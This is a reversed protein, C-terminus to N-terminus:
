LMSGQTSEVPSKLTVSYCKANYLSNIERFYFEQGFYTTLTNTGAPRKM